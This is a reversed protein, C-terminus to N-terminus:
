AVITEEGLDLWFLNWEEMRPLYYAEPLVVGLATALALVVLPRNEEPRRAAYLFAGGLVLAMAAISHMEFPEGHHNTVGSFSGLDIIAWLGVLIYYAGQWGLVWRLVKRRM